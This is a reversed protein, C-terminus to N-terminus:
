EVILTGGHCSPGMDCQWAYSGAPLGDSHYTLPSSSTGVANRFVVDIATDAPASVDAHSNADITIQPVAPQVDFYVIKSKSVLKGHRYQLVQVAHKGTMPINLTRSYETGKKGAPMKALKATYVDMIDYKGDMEMLLKVKVTAPSKATSAPTIVGAVSFDKGMSPTGSLVPTSTKYTTKAYTVAPLTALLALALAALLLAKLRKSM